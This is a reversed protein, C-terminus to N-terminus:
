EMEGAQNNEMMIRELRENRQMAVHLRDCLDQNRAELSICYRKLQQFDKLDYDIM